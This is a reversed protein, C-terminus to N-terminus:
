EAQGGVMGRFADAMERHTRRTTVPSEGPQRGFGCYMAVGFHKLYKSATAVRLRLGVEGDVPLIIGLYVKADGPELRELPRFFDDDLSRLHRPGALHLWDIRRGSNEVGYNAMDVILGMDQAERMPWEPFTGYCLHLGVLVEEPIDRSIRGAPGAYRGWAGDHDTFPFLKELDLVEFCIDWQIALDEAPIEALLRDIERKMAEEYAPEYLGYDHTFSERFFWGFSSAPFPLCVQFRVDSPIEGADRLEKFIRYSELAPDTRPLTDFRVESVGDRYKFDYTSWLNVPKWEPDGEAVTQEQLVEVDCHERHLRLSEFIVWTTRDGTEGDPIAFTADGFLPGCSRLVEESSEGPISGVLLLDDNVRSAM